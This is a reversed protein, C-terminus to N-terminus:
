QSTPRRVRLWRQLRHVAAFLGLCVLATGRLMTRGDDVIAADIVTPYRGRMRVSTKAESASMPQPDADVGAPPDLSVLVLVLVVTPLVSGDAVMAVVIGLLSLEDLEVPTALVVVVLTSSLELEAAVGSM